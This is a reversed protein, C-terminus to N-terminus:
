GLDESNADAGEPDIIAAMRMATNAMEQAAATASAILANSAYSTLADILIQREDNNFYLIYSNLITKKSTM